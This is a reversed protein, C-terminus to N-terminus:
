SLKKKKKKIFSKSCKIKVHKKSIRIILIIQQYQRSKIVKLIKDFNNHDDTKISTLKIM